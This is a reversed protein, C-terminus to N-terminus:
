PTRWSFNIMLPYSHAQRLIGADSMSCSHPFHPKLVFATIARLLCCNPRHDVKGGTRPPRAHRRMTVVGRDGQRALM